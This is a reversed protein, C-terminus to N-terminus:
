AMTQGCPDSKSNELKQQNQHFVKPFGRDDGMIQVSVVTQVMMVGEWIGHLNWLFGMVGDRIGHSIWAGDDCWGFNKGFEMCIGHVMMVGDSIRELNWAFEM